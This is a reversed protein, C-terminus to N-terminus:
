PEKLPGKPGKTLDIVHARQDDTVLLHGPRAVATLSAIRSDPFDHRNILTGSAVDLVSIAQYGGVALWKGDPMFAIIGYDINGVKKVWLAKKTRLDWLQCSQISIGAALLNGDPSFAVSNVICYPGQLAAHLKGGPVEYIKVECYRPEKAKTETGGVAIYKGDPSFALSDTEFPMPITLVQKRTAIEWVRLSKDDCGALLSGDRTFAVRFAVRNTGKWSAYPKGQNLDWLILDDSCASALYKSDDSFLVWAAAEGPLEKWKKRSEVEYVTTGSGTSKAFYKGDPSIV